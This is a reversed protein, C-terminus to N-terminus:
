AARAILDDDAAGFFALLADTRDALGERLEIRRVELDVDDLRLATMAERATPEREVVITLTGLCSCDRYELIEAPGIDDAPILQRGVFRLRLWAIQDRKIAAHDHGHPCTSM